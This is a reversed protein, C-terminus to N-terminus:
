QAEEESRLWVLLVERIKELDATPEATIRAYPASLDKEVRKIWAVPYGPPFRQGLGSTVLLDGEHVDANNPIHPVELVDAGGTGLAIARLGNRNIQVPIAHSPDTILMATSTWSSTHIVQGMVGRADLLPQGEYVGDRRGKNLLVTRKFPDLDVALLEGILMREAVKKPSHMLERLRANESELADFKQLKAELLLQKQKLTRNEDVLRTHTALSESAWNAAQAPLNALYQLPSVVVSLGARIAELHNQRHDVTM